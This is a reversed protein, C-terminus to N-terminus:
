SRRIRRGVLAVIGLVLMWAFGTKPDSTDTMSCGAAQSESIPAPDGNVTITTLYSSRENLQGSVRDEFVTELDVRVTYEGPLDALLAPVSDALYRYEFPTSVSVTGQPNNVLARSGEPSTVLTWTYRLAQNRQNAFLRLRIDQGTEGVIAPSYATLTQLPDLCNESDGLVVYCFDPDCADGVGDRDSDAQDPNAVYPCNDLENLVGDGDIDPDCADGIGNGSLDEQAPNYDNPCNDFVDPIGDGDSDPFCIDEDLASVDISPDLHWQVMPCPDDENPIGSGNIDPDCADGVGDQDLDEQNPNFVTPCNDEENPIGDGDIDPDCADGLENGNTNLQDPNPVNPCNDCADGIGDGDSDRQDPNYVRPCNDFADDIGDDDYDDAHQYSDGLDTNAILISGGGGGGGGGSLEPTGCDDFRGDCEFPPADEAEEAHVTTPLAFLGAALVLACASALQRKM